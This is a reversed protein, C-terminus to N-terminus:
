TKMIFAVEYFPPEHDAIAIADNGGALVSGSIPHTAPYAAASVYGGEGLQISEESHAPISFNNPHVHTPQTHSPQKTGGTSGPNTAATPVSKVFKDLLNPTGNNGDCIVWGAPINGITGHWMAILGAPIGQAALRAAVTDYAGSPSIGLEIMVARLEKKLENYRAAEYYDIDDVRDPLDDTSPIATPYKPPIYSM